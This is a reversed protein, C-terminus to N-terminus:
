FPPIREGPTMPFSATFTTGKKKSSVFSVRGNLARYDMHKSERPSLEPLLKAINQLNTLHDRPSLAADANRLRNEILNLAPQIERKFIRALVMELVDGAGNM